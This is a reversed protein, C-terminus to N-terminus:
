KAEPEAPEKPKDKPKEAPKQAPEKPKEAPKEAPEKPKDKPKEAPKEAPKEKPKEAPKEAPKEKPKEAPEEPKEAPAGLPAKGAKLIKLNIQAIGDHVTNGCVTKRQKMGKRKAKLGVGKVALVRKRQTGTVDFRMPFGSKDSGGTLEFEYGTLDILEGKVKEGIKLGVFGNADSDKVEKQYSKGDKPNSIVLKFEAM